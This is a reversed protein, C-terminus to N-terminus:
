AVIKYNTVSPLYICIAILYLSSLDSGICYVTNVKWLIFIILLSFFLYNYFYVVTFTTHSPLIELWEFFILTSSAAFLSSFCVLRKCFLHIQLRSKFLSIHSRESSVAISLYSM